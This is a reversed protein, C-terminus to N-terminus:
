LVQSLLRTLHIRYYNVVLYSEFCASPSTPNHRAALARTGCLARRIPVSGGLDHSYGDRAVRGRVAVCFAAQASDPRRRQRCRPTGRRFRPVSSVAPPSRYIHLGRLAQRAAEIDAAPGPLPFNAALDGNGANDFPTPKSLCASRAESLVRSAVTRRAAVELAQGSRIRVPRLCQPLESDPATMIANRLNLSLVPKITNTEVEEMDCFPLTLSRKPRAALAPGCHFAICHTFSSYKEPLRRSATHPVSTLTHSRVIRRSRDGTAPRISPQTGHRRGRLCTGDAPCSMRVGAYAHCWAGYTMALLAFCDGMSPTSIAERAEAPAPKAVSSAIVYHSTGLFKANARFVSSSNQIHSAPSPTKRLM